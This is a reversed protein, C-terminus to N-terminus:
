DEMLLHSQKLMDLGCDIRRCMVMGEAAGDPMRIAISRPPVNASKYTRGAEQRSPRGSVTRHCLQALMGPRFSSTTKFNNDTM